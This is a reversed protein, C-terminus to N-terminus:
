SIVIKTFLATSNKDLNLILLLTFIYIYSVVKRSFDLISDTLDHLQKHHFLYDIFKIQFWPLCMRNFCIQQVRFNFFNTQKVLSRLFAIKIVKM